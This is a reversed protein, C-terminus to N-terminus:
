AASWTEHQLHNSHPCTLDVCYGQDSLTSGCRKCTVKEFDTRDYDLCQFGLDDMKSSDTVYRYDKGDKSAVELAVVLKVEEGEPTQFGVVGGDAALIPARGRIITFGGTVAFKFTTDVPLPADDEDSAGYGCYSCNVAENATVDQFDTVDLDSSDKLVVEKGALDKVTGVAKSNQLCDAYLGTEDAATGQETVLAYIKKLREM